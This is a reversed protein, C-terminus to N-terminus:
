ELHRHNGGSGTLILKLALPIISYIGFLILMLVPLFDNDCTLHRRKAFSARSKAHGTENWTTPLLECSWLLFLVISTITKDGESPAGEQRRERFPTPFSILGSTSWKRTQMVRNPEALALAPVSSSHVSIVNVLQRERADAADPLRSRERSVM